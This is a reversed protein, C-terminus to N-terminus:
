ICDHMCSFFIFFVLWAKGFTKCRSFIYPLIATREDHFACKDRIFSVLVRACLEVMCEVFDRRKSPSKRVSNGPNSSVVFM